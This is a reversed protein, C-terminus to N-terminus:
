SWYKESKKTVYQRGNDNENELTSYWFRQREIIFSIKEFVIM